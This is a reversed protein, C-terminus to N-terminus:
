GDLLTNVCRGKGTWWATLLLIQDFQDRWLNLKKKLYKFTSPLSLNKSLSGMSRGRQFQTAEPDNADESDRKDGEKETLVTQKTIVIM